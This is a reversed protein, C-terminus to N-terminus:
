CIKAIKNSKSQSPFRFLLLLVLIYHSFYPDTVDKNKVFAHVEPQLHVEEM